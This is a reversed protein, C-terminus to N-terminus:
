PRRVQIEHRLADAQQKLALTAGTSTCSEISEIATGFLQDIDDCSTLTESLLNWFLM